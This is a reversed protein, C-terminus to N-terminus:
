VGHFELTPLMAPGQIMSIGGEATKFTHIGKLGANLLLVMSWLLGELATVGQEVRIFGM